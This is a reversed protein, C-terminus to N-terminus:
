RGAAREAEATNRLLSTVEEQTRGPMDNWQYLWIWDPGSANDPILKEVLYALDDSRYDGAIGIAEAACVAGDDEGTGQCWGHKDIYDAARDLVESPKLEASM